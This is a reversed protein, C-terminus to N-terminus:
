LIGLCYWTVPLGPNPALGLQLDQSQWQELSGTQSGTEEDRVQPCCPGGGQTTHPNLSTHHLTSEGPTQYASLSQYSNGDKNGCWFLSGPTCSYVTMQVAYLLYKHLTQQTSPIPHCCATCVRGKLLQCDPLSPLPSCSTLSAPMSSISSVLESSPVTMTVERSSAPSPKVSSAAESGQNENM